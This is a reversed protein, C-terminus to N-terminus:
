PILWITSPRILPIRIRVDLAQRSEKRWALLRGHASWALAARARGIQSSRYIANPGAVSQSKPRPRIVQRHMTPSILQEGPITQGRILKDEQVPQGLTVPSRL